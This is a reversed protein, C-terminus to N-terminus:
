EDTTDFEMLLHINRLNQNVEGSPVYMALGVRHSFSDKNQTIHATDINMAGDYTMSLDNWTKAHNGYITLPVYETWTFTTTNITFPPVNVGLDIIFLKNINATGDNIKLALQNVLEATSEFEPVRIWIGNAGTGLSNVYYVGNQSTTAQDKVLIRDYLDLSVGDITLPAATFTGASFGAILEGNTAVDCDNLRVSARPQKVWYIATTGMVYPSAVVVHLGYYEDTSGDYTVVVRMTPAIEDSQNLDLVRTLIWPHSGDGVTTVSYIGNQFASAQNKVLIRDNLVLSIGGITGIAGNSTATLTAGVGVTGNAYTSTLNATTATRCSQFWGMTVDDLDTVKFIYGRSQHNQKIQPERSNQLYSDFRNGDMWIKINEASTGQIRLGIVFKRVDTQNNANSWSNIHYTGLDLFPLDHKFPTKELSPNSSDYEVWSVAIAM